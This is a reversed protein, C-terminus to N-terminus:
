GSRTDSDCSNFCQKSNSIINRFRSATICENVNVNSSGLSKILRFDHSSSRGSKDPKTLNVESPLKNPLIAQNQFKQISRRYRPSSEKNIRPINESKPLYNSSPGKLMSFNSTLKEDIENSKEDLLNCDFSRSFKEAYDTPKRDYEFSRSCVIGKVTKHLPKVLDKKNKRIDNKDNTKADQFAPPPSLIPTIPPPSDSESYNRVPLFGPRESLASAIEPVVIEFGPKLYRRNTASNSRHFESRTRNESIKPTMYISSNASINEPIENNSKRDNVQVWGSKNLYIESTNRNRKQESLRNEQLLYKPKPVNTEFSLHNSSYYQMKIAELKELFHRDSAEISDTSKTKPDDSEAKKM